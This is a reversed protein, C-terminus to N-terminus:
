MSFCQNEGSVKTNNQPTHSNKFTQEPTIEWRLAQGNLYRKLEEIMYQGMRRCEMGVSGAIHPTLFVNPLQFLPSSPLPPEPDTVDLIAQVDPRKKLIQILDAEQVIGGRATNIFTAGPKMIELLKGDIMHRTGPLEPAHLTVVDSIRFLDNLSVLEINLEEMEIASIYPDYAVVRVDLHRLLQVVQKGITGLSIVGVTSGYCGPAQDRPVFTRKERSQRSLKWAHKLGLIIAALTYEAVPKANAAYASCVRIGREWVAPTIWGGIAGGAYFIAQLCPAKQLFNEDILPTGWGSMLIQMKKLLEPHHDLSNRTHPPAILKIYRSIELVEDPGYVLPFIEADLIFLGSLREVIIEGHSSSCNGPLLSSM